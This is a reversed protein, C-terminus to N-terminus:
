VPIFTALVINEAPAHKYALLAHNVTPCKGSSKTVVIIYDIDLDDISCEVFSGNTDIGTLTLTLISEVYGSGYSILSSSVTPNLDDQLIVGLSSTTNYLIESTALNVFNVSWQLHLDETNSIISCSYTITDGPCDIMDSTSNKELFIISVTAILSPICCCSGYSWAM